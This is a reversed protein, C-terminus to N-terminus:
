SRDGKEGAMRETVPRRAEPEGAEQRQGKQETRRSENRQVEKDRKSYTGHIQGDQRHREQWIDQIEAVRAETGKPAQM